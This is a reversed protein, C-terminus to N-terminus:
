ITVGKHYLGNQRPSTTRDTTKTQKVHVGKLGHRRSVSVPRSFPTRRKPSLHFSRDTRLASLLERIVRRLAVVADFNVAGSFALTFRRPSPGFAGFTAFLKPIALRPRSFVARFFTRSGHIAPDIEAPKGLPNPTNIYSTVSAALLEFLRIPIYFLCFVVEAVHYAPTFENSLSAFAHRQGPRFVFSRRASLTDIFDARRAFFLELYFLGVGAFNSIAGILASVFRSSNGDGTFHTFLIKNGLLGNHVFGLKTRLHTPVLVLCGKSAWERVIPAAAVFGVVAVVPLLLASLSALAVLVSALMAANGFFLITLLQINM